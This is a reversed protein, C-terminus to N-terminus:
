SKQRANEQYMERSLGIQATAEIAKDFMRRGAELRDHLMGGIKPADSIMQSIPGSTM